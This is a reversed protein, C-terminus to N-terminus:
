GNRDVRWRKDCLECHYDSWWADNSPDYNGTDSGPTETLAAPPHSCEAQIAHIKSEREAIEARLKAIITM